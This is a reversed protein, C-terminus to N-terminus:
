EKFTKLTEKLGDEYEVQNLNICYIMYIMFGMFLAMGAYALMQLSVYTFVAMVVFPAATAVALMGATRKVARVKQQNM